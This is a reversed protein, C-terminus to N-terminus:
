GCTAQGQVSGGRGPTGPQYNLTGETGEQLLFPAFSKRNLRCSSYDTSM